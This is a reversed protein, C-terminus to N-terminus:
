AGLLLKGIVSGVDIQELTEPRIYTFYAVTIMASVMMYALEHMVDAMHGELDSGLKKFGTRLMLLMAVIMFEGLPTPLMFAMAPFAVGIMTAHWEAKCLYGGEKTLFGNADLIKQNLGSLWQKIKGFLSQDGDKEESLEEEIEKITEEVDKTM